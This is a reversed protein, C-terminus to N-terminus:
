CGVGLTRLTAPCTAAGGSPKIAVGFITYAGSSTWASATSVGAQGSLIKWEAIDGSTDDAGKTYTGEGTVTDNCGFWLGDNNAVPTVSLTCGGTTATGSNSADVFNTADGGSFEDILDNMFSNCNSITWTVTFTALSTNPAYAKFLAASGASVSGVISGVQTITWGSATLTVGSQLGAADACSVFLLVQNGTTGATYTFTNTAVTLSACASGFNGSKASASCLGQGSAVHAVAALSPRCVGLM